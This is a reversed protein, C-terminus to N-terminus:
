EEDAQDEDEDEAEGMAEELAISALERFTEALGENARFAARHSDPDTAVAPNALVHRELGDMYLQITHLASHFGHGGPRHLAEVDGWPQEELDEKLQELVELRSEEIEEDSSPELGSTILEILDKMPIAGRDGAECECLLQQLVEMGHNLLHM